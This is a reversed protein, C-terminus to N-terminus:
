DVRKPDALEGGYLKAYTKRALKRLDDDSLRVLEKLADRFEYFDVERPDLGDWLKKGSLGEFVIVATHHYIGTPEGVVFAALNLLAFRPALGESTLEALYASVERNVREQSSPVYASLRKLVAGSMALHAGDIQHQLEHRETGVVMADRTGPGADKSLRALEEGCVALADRARAPAFVHVSCQSTAAALSVDSLYGDISNIDVLAFPQSDRSYGLWGHGAAGGSISRVLLTAFVDGGVEYRNVSDIRFASAYYHRRVGEKTQELAVSPDLYYPLHANRSADNVDDVLRVFKRGPMDVDETAEAFASFAAALGPDLKKAGEILEKSTKKTALRTTSSSEKRVELYWNRRARDWDVFRTGYVDDAEDTTPGLKWEAGKKPPRSLVWETVSLSTVVAAGIIAAVKLDLGKRARESVDVSKTGTAKSEPATAGWLEDERLSAAEGVVVLAASVLALLGIIILITAVYALLAFSENAYALARYAFMVLLSPLGFTAVVSIWPDPREPPRGLYVLGSLSIVLPFLVLIALFVMGIQFRFGPLDPLSSLARLLTSAPAEGRAPWLYFFLASAVGAWLYIRAVRRAKPRSALIAGASTFGLAFLAAAPRNSVSEPMSFSDWAARDGGLQFLITVLVFSALVTVAISTSRKAVISSVLVALGAAPLALAAAAASPHLEPLTDWLFLPSSEIFEHPLLASLLLFGGAWRARKRLRESSIGFFLAHENVADEIPESEARPDRLEVPESM